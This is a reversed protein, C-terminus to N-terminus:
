DVPSSAWLTVNVTGRDIERCKKQDFFPRGLVPGANGASSEALAGWLFSYGTKGNYGPTSVGTRKGPVFVGPEDGWNHGM